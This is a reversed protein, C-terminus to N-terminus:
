LCAEALRALGQSGRLARRAAQLESYISEVPLGLEASVLAPEREGLLVAVAAPSQRSLIRRVEMAARALDIHWEAQPAEGGALDLANTGVRTVYYPTRHKDTVPICTEAIHRGLRRAVANAQYAELPAGGPKWTRSSELVTLAAQQQLECAEFWPARRQYNAVVARVATPIDIAASM